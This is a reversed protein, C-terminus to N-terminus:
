IPFGPEARVEDMQQLHRDAHAALFLLWQYVDLRGLAFHPHSHARLDLKTDSAFAITSQRADRFANRTEERSVMMGSPAVQEPATVRRGRNAVLRIVRQDISHPDEPKTEPPQNLADEMRAFILRETILLHESCEALSWRDPAPRFIWQEAATCDTTKEFWQMTRTLYDVAVTREADTLKATAAGGFLPASSYRLSRIRDWM